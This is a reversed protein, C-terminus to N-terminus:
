EAEEDWREKEARILPEMVDDTFISDGDERVKTVEDDFIPGIQNTWKERRLMMQRTQDGIIASRAVGTAGGGGPGGVASVPHSGGGAGGPRKANQGKKKANRSRKAFSTQVQGNLDDLITSYEQYAMREKAIQEIRAKRAGNLISVRKLETQLIRLREAVEDDFHGDYDPEADPALFGLHRLEAKLREDMEAGTLKPLNSANRASAPFINEPMYTAPPVSKEELNGNTTDMPDTGNTLGNASSDGNTFGNPKEKDDTPSARHEFRMTSMFRNMMPGMSVQDTEATTDDMDELSGRAQNAPLREGHHGDDVSIQGDEEAWVDKYSKKGRPPMVFPGVRDGREKLWAMDEETLPRVYPEIYAAFTNANVQNTPKANSFDKDPLTGAILHSLDSKPFSNVCYIKKKEDETMDDTVERIHYVTPDDFTSPDPGFTQFQAMSASPPPQRADTSSTSTSPSVRAPSAAPSLPSSSELDDLKRKTRAASDTSRKRAEVPDELQNAIKESEAITLSQNIKQSFYFRLLRKEEPSRQYRHAQEPLEKVKSPMDVQGDQRALGHAGHTLPREEQVNNRENKKKLQAGARARVNEEDEAEQKLRAQEEAKAVVERAAQEKEQREKEQREFEKKRKAMERMADDLTQSRAQALQALTKLDETMTQLHQPDPIGGGSGHRDLIKDYNVNTSVLLNALPYELYATHTQDM